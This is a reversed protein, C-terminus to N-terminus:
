RNKGSLYEEVWQELIEVMLEEISTKRASAIKEITKSESDPLLIVFKQMRILKEARETVTKVDDSRSSRRISEHYKRRQVTGKKYSALKKAVSIARDLDLFKFYIDEIEKAGLGGLELKSFRRLEEPIDSYRLYHRVTSEKVGLARAVKEMDKFRKYLENTARSKDDATMGERYLNESFSLIKAETLGIQKFIFCPVKKLGAIKCAELRRQGSFVRYLKHPEKEKVFLPVMLGNEKISGALEEINLLVDEKRVNAEEWLELQEIPILDPHPKEETLIL